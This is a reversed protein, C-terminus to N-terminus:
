IKSTIDQRFKALGEFPRDAPLDPELDPESNCPDIESKKEEPTCWAQPILIIKKLSFDVRM